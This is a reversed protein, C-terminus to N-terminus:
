IRETLGGQIEQSFLALPGVQARRLHVDWPEVVATPQGQVLVM